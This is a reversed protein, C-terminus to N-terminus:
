TRGQRSWLGREVMQCAITELVVWAAEERSVVRHLDGPSLIVEEPTAGAVIWETAIAPDAQALATVMSEVEEPIGRINERGWCALAVLPAPGGTWGDPLWREAECDIRENFTSSYEM